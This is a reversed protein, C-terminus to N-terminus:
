ATAEQPKVRATVNGTVREREIVIDGVEDGVARLTKRLKDEVADFIARGAFFASENVDELLDIFNGLPAISLSIDNSLSDKDKTFNAM